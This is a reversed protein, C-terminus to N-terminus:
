RLAQLQALIATARGDDHGGIVREAISALLASMDAGTGASGLLTAIRDLAADDDGLAAQAESRLEDGAAAGGLVVGLPDAGEGGLVGSQAARVGERLKNLASNATAKGDLRITPPTETNTCVVEYYLESESAVQGTTTIIPTPAPQVESGGEASGGLVQVGSAGVILAGLAFSGTATGTIQVSYPGATPNPVVIINLHKGSHGFDRARINQARKSPAADEAAAGLVGAPLMARGAPTRVRMRVPSATMIVLQPQQVPAAGLAPSTVGLEGFVRTLVAPHDPLAAHSVPVPVLNKAKPHNLQANFQLVTNDGNVDTQDSVPQGDPFLVPDGPTPPPSGVVIRQITGFGTGSLTTVPVNHLLTEVNAPLNLIDGWLNRERMQDEIKPAPPGGQDLLYNDVPLLDRVSPILLRVTRLQNLDTQFPHAHRLYWLYVGFVTRMTQDGIIEGNGWIYYAQASGRHPTGLTILREVDGAYQNSQIYSRAV